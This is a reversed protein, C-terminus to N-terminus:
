LPSMSHLIDSPLIATLLHLSFQALSYFYYTSDILCMGLLIHVSKDNYSVM